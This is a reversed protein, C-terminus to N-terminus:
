LMSQRKLLMNSMEMQCRMLIAKSEKNRGVRLEHNELFISSNERARREKHARVLIERGTSIGGHVECSRWDGCRM